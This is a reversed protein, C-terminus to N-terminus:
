VLDMAACGLSHRRGTRRRPAADAAGTRRGAGASAPVVAQGGALPRGPDDRSSQGVTTGGTVPSGPLHPDFGRRRGSRSGSRYLPVQARLFGPGDGLGPRRWPRPRRHVVQHDLQRRGRRLQLAADPGLPEGVWAPLALVGEAGPM